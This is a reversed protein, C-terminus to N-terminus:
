QQQGIVFNDLWGLIERPEGPAEAPDVTIVDRVAGGAYQSAKERRKEPTAGTEVEYVVARGDPPGLDLVDVRGGASNVETDWRRGARQLKLALVAKM